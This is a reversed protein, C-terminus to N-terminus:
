AICVHVYHVCVHPCVPVCVPVCVCVCVYVIYVFRQIKETVVKFPKFSKTYIVIAIAFSCLVSVCEAAHKAMRVTILEPQASGGRGGNGPLPTEETVKSTALRSEILNVAEPSLGEEWRLSNILDLFNQSDGIALQISLWQKSEM